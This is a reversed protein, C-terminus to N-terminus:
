RKDGSYYNWCHLSQAHTHTHTHTHARTQTYEKVTFTEETQLIDSVYMLPINHTNIQIGRGLEKMETDLFTM